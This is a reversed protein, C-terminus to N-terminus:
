KIVFRATPLFLALEWAQSPVEVFTSRVHDMRYAHVAKKFHESESMAKLLQWDLQLKTNKRYRKETRLKLLAKFAAMRAAPPLYHMNLGLVITMGDKAKYSDFPFILPYRDYIPLTDKYKPDYEYFYMKGITMKEKWLKRDRFMVGTGVKNHARGVYQRFWNLSNATNRKQSNPNNKKWAKEIRQLIQLETGTQNAYEQKDTAM